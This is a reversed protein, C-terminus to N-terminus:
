NVLEKEKNVLILDPRRAKILNYETLKFNLLIRM